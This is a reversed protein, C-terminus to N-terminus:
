GGEEGGYVADNGSIMGERSPEEQAAFPGTDPDKFIIGKLDSVIQPIREEGGMLSAMFKTLLKM